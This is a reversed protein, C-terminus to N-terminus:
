ALNLKCTLRHQKKIRAFLLHSFNQVNYSCCIVFNLLQKIIQYLLFCRWLVPQYSSSDDTGDTIKVRLANTEGPLNQESRLEAVSYNNNYATAARKTEISKKWKQQM